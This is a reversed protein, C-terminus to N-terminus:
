NFPTWCLAIMDLKTSTSTDDTANAGIDFQGVVYIVGGAAISASNATDSCTNSGSAITCTISTASGSVEPATSVYITFDWSDDVAATNRSYVRLNSIFGASPVMFHDHSVSSTWLSTGGSWDLMDYYYPGLYYHNLQPEAIIVAACDGDWVYDLKGSASDYGVVYGDTPASNFDIDAEAITGDLIDASAISSDVIKSSDVSDAALDALAVSGNTINSSDISNVGSEIESFNTNWKTATLVDGDSVTKYTISLTGAVVAAVMMCLLLFAALIRGSIKAMRDTTLRSM